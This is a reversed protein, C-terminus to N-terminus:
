LYLALLFIDGQLLGIDHEQYPSIFVDYNDRISCLAEELSSVRKESICTVIGSIFTSLYDHLHEIYVVLSTQEQLASHTAIIVVSEDM